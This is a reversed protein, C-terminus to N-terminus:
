TQAIIYKRLGRKRPLIPVHFGDVFGLSEAFCDNEKGFRLVTQVIEYRTPGLPLVANDTRGATAVFYAEELILKAPLTAGSVGLALEGDLNSGDEFIRWETQVLPKRSHPEDEIALVTDTRALDGAGQADSLLGRPEHKVSDSQCLLALVATLQRACHFHVFSEDATFSAVHMLRLTLANDGPSATLVLSHDHAHHLATTFHSRHDYIGTLPFVKLLLDALVDFRARGDEAVLQFRVLPQFSVVLVGNDIM